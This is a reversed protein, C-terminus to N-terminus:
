AQPPGALEKKHVRPALCLQRAWVKDWCIGGRDRGGNRPLEGAGLGLRHQVRLQCRGSRMILNGSSGGM